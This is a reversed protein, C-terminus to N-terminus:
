LVASFAPCRLGDSQKSSFFFSTHYNTIEKLYKSLKSFLISSPLRVRVYVSRGKIKLPSSVYSPRRADKIHYWFTTSHLLLISPSPAKIHTLAPVVLSSDGRKDGDLMHLMYRWNKNARMGECIWSKLKAFLGVLVKRGVGSSSVHFGAQNNQSIHYDYLEQYSRTPFYVLNKLRWRYSYNILRGVWIFM